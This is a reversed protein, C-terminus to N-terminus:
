RLRDGEERAFEGARGAARGFGGARRTGRERSAQRLGSGTRGLLQSWRSDPVQDEGASIGSISRNVREGRGVSWCHLSSLGEREQLWNSNAPLAVLEILSARRREWDASRGALRASWRAAEEGVEAGGGGAAVADVESGPFAFLRPRPV